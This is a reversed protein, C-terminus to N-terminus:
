ARTGAGKPTYRSLYLYPMYDSITRIQLTDHEIVAILTDPGGRAPQALVGLSQISPMDTPETGYYAVAQVTRNPSNEAPAAAEGGEPEGLHELRDVWTPPLVPKAMDLLALWAKRVFTAPTEPEDQLAQAATTLDPPAFWRQTWDMRAGSHIAGTSLLVSSGVNKGSLEFFRNQRYAQQASQLLSVIQRESVGKARMAATAKATSFVPLKDIPLDTQSVTQQGALPLMERMTRIFLYLGGSSPDKRLTAIRTEPSFYRQLAMWSQCESCPMGAETDGLVESAMVLWRVKQQAQIGSLSRSEELSALPTKSLFQNWATVMASREGCFINDRSQEMNAGMQWSGDELQIASAKFRNSFNGLLQNKRAHEHARLYQVLLETKNPLIVGQPVIVVNDPNVGYRNLLATEEPSGGGQQGFRV